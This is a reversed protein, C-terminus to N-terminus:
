RRRGSFAQLPTFANLPNQKEAPAKAHEDSQNTPQAAHAKNSHIMGARVRARARVCARACVFARLRVSVCAFLCLPVRSCARVCARV